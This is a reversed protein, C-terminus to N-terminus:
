RKISLSMGRKAETFIVKDERALWGIGMYVITQPQKMRAVIASVSLPGEKNLLEWIEGAAKGITHFM